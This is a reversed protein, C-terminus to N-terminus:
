VSIRFQTTARCAFGFCVNDYCTSSRGLAQGDCIMPFQPTSRQRMMAAFKNMVRYKRQRELIDEKNEAYVRKFMARRADANMHARLAVLMDPQRDWLRLVMLVRDEEDIHQWEEHLEHIDQTKAKKPPRYPYEDPVTVALHMFYDRIQPSSRCALGFINDPEADIELDDRDLSRPEGASASAGVPTSEGVSPSGSSAAVSGSGLPPPLLANSSGSQVDSSADQSDASCAKRKQGGGARSDFMIVATPLRVPQEVVMHDEGAGRRFM